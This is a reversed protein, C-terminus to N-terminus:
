GTGDDIWDSNDAVIQAVADGFRADIDDLAPQGGGDEVVDHLLGGIAEDEDGGMELALAAVSLVHAVYPITTGRRLQLAHHRTAFHLANDFRATLLPSETFSETM